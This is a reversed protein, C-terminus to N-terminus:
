RPSHVCYNRANTGSAWARLSPLTRSDTCISDSTSTAIDPDNSNELRAWLTYKQCKGNTTANCWDAGVVANEYVEYIYAPGTTDSPLQQMYTKPSCTFAIGWNLGSVPSGTTVCSIIFFDVGLVNVTFQDPYAGNDAYFVELAQQIAALDSKRKGDRSKQQVNTYSVTAVATLIAM